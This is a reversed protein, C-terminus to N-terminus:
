AMVPCVDLTFVQFARRAPKLWFPKLWFPEVFEVVIHLVEVVVTLLM